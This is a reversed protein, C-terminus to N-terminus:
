KFKPKYEEKISCDKFIENSYEINGVICSNLISCILDGM